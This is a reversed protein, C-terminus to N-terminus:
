LLATVLILTKERCNKAIKLTSAINLLVWPVHLGNNNETSGSLNYEIFLYAIKKNVAKRFNSTILAHPHIKYFSKSIRQILPM